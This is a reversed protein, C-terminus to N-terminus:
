ARRGANLRREGAVDRSAALGWGVMLFFWGATRVTFLASNSAVPWLIVCCIVCLMAQQPAEVPSLARLMRWLWAAAMAVFCALGPLGATTAVELYINHPHINCGAGVPVHFDYGFLSLDRAFSPNPCFDRFGDAGLGLWPHQRVMAAARIYIHGYDSDPFDRIQALFHVVLKAYAPPSLIPLLFLGVVGAMGAAFVAWRTSPVFLATLVLGLGFLLTPMRQGILLMTVVLFMILAIGALKPRWSAAQLRRLAFPMLGPFVVMLLAAGARPKYFPGTLAGDPWRPFGWINYGLLYQQWCEVVLWLAAVTVVAGLWRRSAADRLVWRELAASFLFFRILVCAEAVAHSSGHLASSLIALGCFLLAFAFWGRRWWDNARTRICHVLFLLGIASMIGDSIARGRLQFFPMVMMMALAIWRAVSDFAAGRWTAKEMTM